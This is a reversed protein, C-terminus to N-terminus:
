GSGDDGGMANGEHIASVLGRNIWAICQAGFEKAHPCSCTQLSETQATDQRWM